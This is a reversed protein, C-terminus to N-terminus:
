SKKSNLKSRLYVEFFTEAKSFDLGIHEEFFVLFDKDFGKELREQHTKDAHAAFYPRITEEKFHFNINGDFFFLEGNEVKYILKAINLYIASSYLQQINLGFVEIFVDHPTYSNYDLCLLSSGELDIYQSGNRWVSVLKPGLNDWMEIIPTLFALNKSLCFKTKTEIKYYIHALFIIWIKEETKM